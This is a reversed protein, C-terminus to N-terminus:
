VKYTAFLRYQYNLFFQEFTYLANVIGHNWREYTPYKQTCLWSIIASHCVSVLHRSLQSVLGALPSPTELHGTAVGLMTQKDLTLFKSRADLVRESCNNLVNLLKEEGTKGLLREAHPHSALPGLADRVMGSWWKDPKNVVRMPIDRDDAVRDAIVQFDNFLSRVVVHKVRSGRQRYYQITDEREMSAFDRKVQPPMISALLSADVAASDPKGNKAWRWVKAWGKDVLLKSLEAGPQSMAPQRVRIRNLSVYRVDAGDYRCVGMGGLWTPAHLVDSSPRYVNDGVKIASWHKVLLHKMRECREMDGGRRILRNIGQHINQAAKVGAYRNSTQTDGSSLGAIGRCYSGSVTNGDRYMLRLFEARRMSVMQKEAQADLGLPDILSVFRLATWLSPSEGEMDDGLVNYRSLPDVGYQRLFMIRQATTYAFNFTVNIYM